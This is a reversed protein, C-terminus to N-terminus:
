VSKAGNNASIIQLCIEEFMVLLRKQEQLESPSIDDQSDLVRLRALLKDKVQILESINEM